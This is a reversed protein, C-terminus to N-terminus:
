PTVFQSNTQYLGLTEVTPEDIAGTISLGYDRQFNALAARTEGDLSGTISGSYYGTDQLAVQVNAIVEDPLLDGYTYIPGDYDNYTQLPDYGWAPYWYSGDLFYYGTSIFVITDCNNHWWNRDHWERWHRRCADGYGLHKDKNRWKKTTADRPSERPEVQPRAAPDRTTVQRETNLTALTANKNRFGRRERMEALTRLERQRTAPDLTIPEREGTRANRPVTLATFTPNSTRVNPSHNPLLNARPQAAMRPTYSNVTRPTFSTPKAAIRPAISVNGNPKAAPATRTTVARSSSNQMVPNIMQGAATHISASLTAVLCFVAFRSKKM